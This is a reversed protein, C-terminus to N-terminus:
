AKTTKTSLLKYQCAFCVCACVCMCMHMCVCVCVCVCVAARTHWDDQLCTETNHQHTGRIKQFGLILQTVLSLNTGIILLVLRKYYIMKQKVSQHGNLHIVPCMAVGMIVNARHCMCTTNYVTIYVSGTTKHPYDGGLSLCKSRSNNLGKIHM